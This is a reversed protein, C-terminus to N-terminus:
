CTVVDMCGRLWGDEEGGIGDARGAERGRLEAGGGGMGQAVGLGIGEEGALAAGPGDGGVQLDIVLALSEQTAGDPLTEGAHEEGAAQVGVGDAVQDRGEGAPVELGGAHSGGKGGQRKKDLAAHLQRECPRKNVVSDITDLVQDVVGRSLPEPLRRYLLVLVNDPTTARDDRNSQSEKQLPHLSPCLPPISVTLRDTHFESSARTYMIYKIPIWCRPIYLAKRSQSVVIRAIIKTWSRM